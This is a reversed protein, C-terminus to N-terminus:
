KRDLPMANFVIQQPNKQDKGYISEFAMRIQRGDSYSFIMTFNRIAYTGSGLVKDSQDETDSKVHRMWYIAGNDTFRGDLTFTLTPEQGMYRSPDKEATFTGAFRAGDPSSYHLNFEVHDYYVKNDKLEFPYSQGNITITGKGNAFTYTGWYYPSSLRQANLDVGDFGVPPIVGCFTGDPFFVIRSKKLRSGTYIASFGTGAANTIGTTTSTSGIGDWLGLLDRAATGPAVPTQAAAPAPPAAAPAASSAVAPAAATATPAPRSVVPQDIPEISNTFADVADTFLSIDTTTILVSAVRGFGAIAVLVAQITYNKVPIKASAMVATWGTGTETVQPTGEYSAKLNSRIVADWVTEFDKQPSGSSALSTYVWLQCFATRSANYSTYLVHDNEVVTKEWGAPPTFSLLDFTEAPLSFSAAFLWIAALVFASPVPLRTTKSM